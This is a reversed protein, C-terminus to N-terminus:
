KLARKKPKTNSKTLVFNAFDKHKAKICTEEEEIIKFLVEDKELKKDKQMQNNIITLYIKFAPGLNNFIWIKFINEIMISQEKM